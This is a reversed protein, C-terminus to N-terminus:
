PLHTMVTYLKYLIFPSAILFILVISGVLTNKQDESLLSKSYKGIPKVEINQAGLKSRCEDAFDHIEKLRQREKRTLQNKKDIWNLLKLPKTLWYVFLIILSSILYFLPFPFIEIRNDLPKNPDFFCTNDPRHGM